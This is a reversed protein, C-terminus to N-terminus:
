RSSRGFVEFDSAVEVSMPFHSVVDESLVVPDCIAKTVEHTIAPLRSLSYSDTTPKGYKNKISFDFITLKALWGHGAAHLRASSLVYTLPNSDTWVEFKHGYLYDYFKETVAWKLAVFELKYASYNRESPKLSRSAYSIVHLKDDIRQYLVAGIGQTSADTHVEFPHKYYAYALVPANIM